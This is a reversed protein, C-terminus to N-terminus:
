KARKNKKILLFTLFLVVVAGAAIGVIWVTSLGDAEAYIEGETFTINTQVDRYQEGVVGGLEETIYRELAEVDLMGDHQLIQAGELMKM